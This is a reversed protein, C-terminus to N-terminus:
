KFRYYEQNLYATTNDIEDDFWKLELNLECRRVQTKLQDFSNVKRDPRTYVEAGHCQICHKDALAKGANADAASAEIGLLSLLIGSILIAKM